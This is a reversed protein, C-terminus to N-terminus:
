IVEIKDKHPLERQLQERIVDIEDCIEDLEDDTLNAGEKEEIRIIAIKM